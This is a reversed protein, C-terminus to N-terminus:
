IKAKRFLCKRISLHKKVNFPKERFKQISSSQNRNKQQFSHNGSPKSKIIIKSEAFTIEMNKNFKISLTHCYIYSCLLIINEPM